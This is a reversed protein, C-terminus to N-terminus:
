KSSANVDKSNVIDKSGSKLESISLKLLISVWTSDQTIANQSHLVSKEKINICKLFDWQHTINRLKTPIWLCNNIDWTAQVNISNNRLITPLLLSSDKEIKPMFVIGHRLPEKTCFTSQQSTLIRFIGISSHEGPELLCFPLTSVMFVKQLLTLFSRNFAIFSGNDQLLMWWPSKSTPEM